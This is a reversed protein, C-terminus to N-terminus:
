RPLIALGCPQRLSMVASNCFFMRHFNSTAASKSFFTRGTRLPLSQSSLTLM